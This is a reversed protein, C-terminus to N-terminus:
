LTPEAVDTRPFTGGIRGRRRDRLVRREGNAHGKTRRREPGVRRDVIVSVDPNDRYYAVMKEYLEGQLERPIVCYIM